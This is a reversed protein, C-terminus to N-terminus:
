RTLWEPLGIAGGLDAGSALVLALDAKRREDFITENSPTFDM